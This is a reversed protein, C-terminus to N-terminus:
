ERGASAGSHTEDDTSTPNELPVIVPERRRYDAARVLQPEGFIGFTASDPLTVTLEGVTEGANIVRLLEEISIEGIRVVLENGASSAIENPGVTARATFWLLGGALLMLLSAAAAAVPVPLAVRRRWLPVPRRVLPMDAIRQWVAQKSAAFDPEPDSHLMRRGECLQAYVAACEADNQLEDAIREKWPSPVEGDLYASLLERDPCM